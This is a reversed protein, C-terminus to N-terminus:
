LYVNPCDVGSCLEHAWRCCVSCQFWNEEKESFDDCILCRDGNDAETDDLEDNDCLQSDSIEHESESEEFVKTSPTPIPSLEEFSVESQSCGFDSLISTVQASEVQQCVESTSPGSVGTKM